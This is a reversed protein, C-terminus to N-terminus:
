RAKVPSAIAKAEFQLTPFRRFRVRQEERLFTCFTELSMLREAAPDDASSGSRQLQVDLVEEIDSRRKLQTVFQQFAAFDLYGRRQTDAKTFKQALDDATSQIGLRKCLKIIEGLDLKEDQTNSDADKWQQRLWMNEKQSLSGTPTVELGLLARRANQLTELGKKWRALSENSLAILHLAKYEGTRQYIISVWRPEHSASISLSTRYASAASAWRVECISELDVTSPCAVDADSRESFRSHHVCEGKNKKKSDWVIQGRDADLRFIRQMVKKSTVKLMPEGKQLEQPVKHPLDLISSAATDDAAKSDGDASRESPTVQAIVHLQHPNGADSQAHKAVALTPTTPTSPAGASIAPSTAGLVVEISRRRSNREDSDERM